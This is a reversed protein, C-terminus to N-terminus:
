KERKKIDAGSPAALKTVVVSDLVKVADSATFLSQIRLTAKVLSMLMLCLCLCLHILVNKLLGVSRDEHVM